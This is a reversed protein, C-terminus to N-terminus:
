GDGEKGPEEVEGGHLLIQVMVNGGIRIPCVNEGHLTAGKKNEFPQRCDREKRLGGSSEKQKPTSLDWWVL